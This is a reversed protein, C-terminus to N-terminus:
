ATANITDIDTTNAHAPTTAAHNTRAAAISGVRKKGNPMATMVTPTTPTVIADVIIAAASRSFSFSAAAKSKISLCRSFRAM